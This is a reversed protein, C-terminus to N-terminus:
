IFLPLEIRVVFDCVAAISLQWGVFCKILNNVDKNQHTNVARIKLIWESSCKWFELQDSKNTIAFQRKNPDNLKSSNMADFVNNFTMLFEAPESAGAGILMSHTELAATITRSFEQAATKVKMKSFAPLEVKQTLKPALRFRQKQNM